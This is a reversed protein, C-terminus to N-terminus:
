KVYRDFPLHQRIKELLKDVNIPKTVYGNAGLKVCAEVTAKDRRGSAIIIPIGTTRKDSRLQKTTEIGDLGPMNIDMIIVNPFTEDIAIMAQSGDDVLIPNYGNAELIDEYVERTFPDDEFVMVTPLMRQRKGQKDADAADGTPRKRAPGELAQLVCLNIRWVDHLPKFVIYDDIVGDVCLDYADEAEELQCM